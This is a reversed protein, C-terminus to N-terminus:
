HIKDSLKDLKKSLVIKYDILLQKKKVDVKVRGGQQLSGFLLEHAIPKKITEDIVRAMPRAGM